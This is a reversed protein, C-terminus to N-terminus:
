TPEDKGSSSQLRISRCGSRNTGIARKEKCDIDTFHRFFGGSKRRNKVVATWSKGARITAWLDAFAEKPMDPHRVINQPQGICEELTFESSSLFAPNAYTIRSTTDTHTIIVEDEPLVYEIATVPGNNRM